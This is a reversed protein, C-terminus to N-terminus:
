GLQQLKIRERVRYLLYQGWRLFESSRERERVCVYLGCVVKSFKGKHCRRRRSPIVGLERRRREGWRRLQTIKGKKDKVFTKQNAWFSSNLTRANDTATRHGSNQNRQCPRVGTLWLEVIGGEEGRRAVVAFEGWGGRTYYLVIVVRGRGTQHRHCSRIEHRPLGGDSPPSIRKHVIFRGGGRRVKTSSPLPSAGPVSASASFPFPDNKM